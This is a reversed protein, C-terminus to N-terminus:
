FVAGAGFRDRLAQRGAPGVATFSVDVVALSPLRDTSALLHAAKNAIALHSLRLVTLPLPPGSLLAEIGETRPDNVSLDLIRLRGGALYPSRALTRLDDAGLNNAQLTLRRLNGLLPAEALCHIGPGCLANHTMDLATLQQLAPLRLHTQLQGVNQWYGAYGCLEFTNLNRLGPSCLLTDLDPRRLYTHRLRLSRLNGWLPSASLAAVGEPPIEGLELHLDTLGALAPATALSRVFRGLSYHARPGFGLSRLGTLHPSALLPIVQEPHGDPLDLGSLRALHPSAGLTAAHERLTSLRLYQVPAKRFLGGRGRLFQGVSCRVQALFGRRFESGRRAWAAIEQRWRAGHAALLEGARVTLAVQRPEGEPLREAECQARIFEARARDPPRGREELWDAYVLRPTDDDPADLIADLFAQDTAM